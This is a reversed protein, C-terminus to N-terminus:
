LSRRKSRNALAPSGTERFRAALVRLDSTDRPHRKGDLLERQARAIPGPVRSKLRDMRKFLARESQGATKGIAALDFGRVPGSFAYVHLNGKFFCGTYPIPLLGAARADRRFRDVSERSVRVPQVVETLVEITAVYQTGKRHTDFIFPVGDFFCIGYSTEQTDADFVTLGNESPVLRELARLDAAAGRM